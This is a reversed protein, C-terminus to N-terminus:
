KQHVTGSKEGRKKREKRVKQTFKQFCFLRLCCDCWTTMEDRLAKVADHWSDPRHDTYPFDADSLFSYLDTEVMTEVINGHKYLFLINIKQLMTHHSSSKINRVIPCLIPATQLTVLKHNM